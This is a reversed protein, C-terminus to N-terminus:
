WERNLRAMWHLLQFEPDSSKSPNVALQKKFDRIFHMQDYYGHDLFDAPLKKQLVSDKYLQKFRILNIFKKPSLGFVLKFQRQLHRISLYHTKALEQVSIQGKKALITTLIAQALKVQPPATTSGIASKFARWVIPICSDLNHSAQLQHNLDRLWDPGFHLLNKNATSSQSVQDGFLHYAGVAQLKLGILQCQNLRSALVTHTQIGVYCSAAIIQEPADLSLYAKHYAGKLVFILEPYGDPILLDPKSREEYCQM